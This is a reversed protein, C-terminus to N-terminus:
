RDPEFCYYMDGEGREEFAVRVKMGTEVEDETVNILNALIRVGEDLDIMAVIYPVDDEFGAMPVLTATYAYVTGRGTATRWELNARGTALSTARPYFQHAGTGPDYQVMLEHAQVADWFPRTTQWVDPRPKSKTKDTM